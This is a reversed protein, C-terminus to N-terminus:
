GEDLPHQGRLTREVDPTGLYARTGVELVVVGGVEIGLANAAVEVTQLKDRQAIAAATTGGDAVIDADIGTSRHIAAHM